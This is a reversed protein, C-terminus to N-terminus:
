KVFWSQATTVAQDMQLDSLDKFTPGEKGDFLNISQYSM